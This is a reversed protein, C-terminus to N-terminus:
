KRWWGKGAVHRFGLDKLRDAVEGDSRLHLVWLNGNRDRRDDIKLGQQRQLLTL